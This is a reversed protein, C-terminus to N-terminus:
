FVLIKAYYCFDWARQLLLKKGEKKNDFFFTVLFPECLRQRFLFIDACYKENLNPQM